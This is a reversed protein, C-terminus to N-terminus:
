WFRYMSVGIWALGFVVFMYTIARRAQAAQPPGSESHREIWAMQLGAGIWILGFLLSITLKATPELYHGMFQVGIALLFTAGALPIASGAFLQKPIHGLAVGILLPLVVFVVALAILVIGRHEALWSVM